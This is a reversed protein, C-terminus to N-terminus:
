RAAVAPAAGDREIFLGPPPHTEILDPWIREPERGFVIKADGQLVLWDGHAIEAALQGPAWGSHGAYVRLEKTEKRRKLLRELTNKDGSYYVDAMVHVAQEPPTGSRVLFLLINIGVPGGFFLLHQEKNPVKLDPLARSLQIKTPRNIILGLTGNEGHRLLLIVTRQFRPDPMNPHAVLFVGKQLIVEGAPEHRRQLSSIGSAGYALSCCILLGLSLFPLSHRTLRGKLTFRPSSM